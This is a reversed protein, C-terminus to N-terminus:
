RNRIPKGHCDWSNVRLFDNFLMLPTAFASPGTGAMAFLQLHVETKFCFFIANRQNQLFPASFLKRFWNQLPFILDLDFFFLVDRLILSKRFRNFKWLFEIPKLWFGMCITCKGLWNSVCLFVIPKCQYWVARFPVWFCKTPKM